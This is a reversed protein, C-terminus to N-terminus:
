NSEARSLAPLRVEHQAADSVDQRSVDWPRSSHYHLHRRGEVQDALALATTTGTTTTSSSSPDGRGLYSAIRDMIHSGIGGAPITNFRDPLPLFGRHAQYMRKVKQDNRLVLAGSRWGAASVSLPLYAPEGRGWPQDDDDDDDLNPHLDWDMGKEEIWDGLRPRLDLNVSIRELFNLGTEPDIGGRRMYRLWERQETSFWVQWWRGQTDGDSVWDTQSYLVGRLFSESASTGLGLCGSSHPERGSSLIHGDQTLALTHWDGFALSLVGRSQLDAPRTPHLSDHLAIDGGDHEESAVVWARELLDQSGIVVDGGTNFVAFSRFSGQIESMKETCRLPGFHDLEFIRQGPSPHEEIKFAFVKGLDTLFVLFHELVVYSVVEGVTRGLAEQEASRDRAQRQPRQYSTDPIVSADTTLTDTDPGHGCYSSLDDIAWFVIGTGKVYIANTSWGAVVRTVRGLASTGTGITSLDLSRFQVRVAPSRISLVWLWLVGSDSLAIIERRGASFQAITTRPTRLTEAPAFKLPSLNHYVESRFEQQRGDLRGM